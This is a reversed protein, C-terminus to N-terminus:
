TFYRQLESFQNFSVEPIFKKKLPAQSKALAM